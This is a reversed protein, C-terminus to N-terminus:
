QGLLYDLLSSAGSSSGSGSGSPAPATQTQQPGQSQASAGPAPPLLGQPMRLAGPKRTSIRPRTRGRATKGASRPSAGAASGAAALAQTPTDGNALARLYAQTRELVPDGGSADKISAASASSGSLPKQFNATCDPSNQTSYTSCTNVLLSARLYHGVQDFGNVAGVQYFLYDMVREIGGTDRLSTTLAALNASLPKAQAAFTKLDGAIPKAKVLAIRGPVSASGLSKVAPIGAQAFPGLQMVFRSISPAEAGLDTLVPTM